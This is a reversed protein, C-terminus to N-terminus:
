PNSLLHTWWNAYKGLKEGPLPPHYMVQCQPTDPPPDLTSNNNWLHTCLPLLLWWSLWFLQSSKWIFYHMKWALRISHQPTRWIPPQVHLWMWHLHTQGTAAILTATLQSRHSTAPPQHQTCVWKSGISAKLRSGPAPYYRYHLDGNNVQAAVVGAQLKVGCTWLENNDCHDEYRWSSM